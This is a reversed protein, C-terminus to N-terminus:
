CIYTFKRLKVKSGLVKCYLCAVENEDFMNGFKCNFQSCVVTGPKKPMQIRKFYLDEGYRVRKVIYYKKRLM